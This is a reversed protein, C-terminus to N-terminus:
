IRAFCLHPVELFKIDQDGGSIKFAKSLLKKNHSRM